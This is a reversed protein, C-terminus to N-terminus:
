KSPERDIVWGGIILAVGTLVLAMLGGWGLVVFALLCGAGLGDAVASAVKRLNVNM